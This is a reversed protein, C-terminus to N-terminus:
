GWVQNCFPHSQNQTMFERMIGKRHERLGKEWESYESWSLNDKMLKLKPIPPNPRFDAGDVRYISFRHDDDSDLLNGDTRVIYVPVSYPEAYLNAMLNYSLAETFTIKDDWRKFDIRAVVFPFPEKEILELDVDLAYCNGPLHKKHLRKFRDGICSGILNETSNM